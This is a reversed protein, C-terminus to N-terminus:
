PRLKRSSSCRPARPSVTAAPHAGRQHGSPRDKLGGRGHSRIIEADPEGLLRQPARISAPVPYTEPPYRNRSVPGPQGCARHRCEALHSSARAGAWVLRVEGYTLAAVENGGDDLWRLAVAAPQRESLGRFAELLM